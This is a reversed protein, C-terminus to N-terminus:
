NARRLKNLKEFNNFIELSYEWICLILSRRYRIKIRVISMKTKDVLSAETYQYVYQCRDSVIFKLLVIYNMSYLTGVLCTPRWFQGLFHVYREKDASGGVFLCKSVIPIYALVFVFIIMWIVVQTKKKMIKRKYM